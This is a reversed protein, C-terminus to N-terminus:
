NKTAPASEQVVRFICRDEDVFSVIPLSLEENRRGHEASSECSYHITKTIGSKSSKCVSGDRALQM